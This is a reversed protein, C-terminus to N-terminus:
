PLQYGGFGKSDISEMNSGRKGNQGWEFSALNGGNNVAEQSWQNQEARGAAMESLYRSRELMDYGMEYDFAMEQQRMLNDRSQFWKDRNELRQNADMAMIKRNGDLVTSALGAVGSIGSRLSGISNLGSAVVRNNEDQYMNLTEQPLGEQAYRSALNESVQANKYALSQTYDLNPMADLSDEADQAKKGKFFGVAGGVVGGVAAGYPGLAAGAMAGSAAGSLTSNAVQNAM